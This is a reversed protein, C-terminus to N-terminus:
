VSRRCVEGRGVPVVKDSFVDASWHWSRLEEERKGGDMGRANSVQTWIFDRLQLIAFLWKRVDGM